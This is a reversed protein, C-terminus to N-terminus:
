VTCAHLIVSCPLMPARMLLDAEVAAVEVDGCVCLGQSGSAKSSMVLTETQKQEKRENPSRVSGPAYDSLLLIGGVSAELSCLSM